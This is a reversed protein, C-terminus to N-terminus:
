RKPDDEVKFFGPPVKVTVTRDIAEDKSTDRPHSGLVVALESVKEPDDRRPAHTETARLLWERGADEPEVSDYAEGAPSEAKLPLGREDEVELEELGVEVEDESLAGDDLGALVPGGSEGATEGDMAEGDDMVGGDDVVRGDEAFEGDDAFEDDRYVPEGDAGSLESFEDGEGDVLAAREREPHAGGRADRDRDVDGRDVTRDRNARRRSWVLATAFIATGGLVGLPLALNSRRSSTGTPM